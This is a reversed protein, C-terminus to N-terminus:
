SIIFYHVWAKFAELILWWHIWYHSHTSALLIIMNSSFSSPSSFVSLFSVLVVLTDAAVEHCRHVLSLPKLEIKGAGEWPWLSSMKWDLLLSLPNAGDKKLILWVQSFWALYGLSWVQWSLAKILVFYYEFHLACWVNSSSRSGAGAVVLGPPLSRAPISYRIVYYGMAWHQLGSPQSIHVPRSPLM